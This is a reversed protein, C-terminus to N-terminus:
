DWLNLREKSYDVYYKDMEIGVGNIGLEQCALLSTGTGCFPDLLKTEENYGHLKICKKPLEVPFIAPHKGKEIKSNITTYPIFWVNGACRKDEKVSNWRKINEKYVYPSGISLRDINVNGTKTFHFIFEWNQNLYRKSNIPKFHGFSDDGISVNKVWIISNQLTFINKALEAVEHPVWPDSGTGAINLFFSGDEKLVRYIGLFVKNLFSLYQRRPEDDKYTNYKTKLNYPPSTVVVDFFENDFNCMEELCKGHILEISM